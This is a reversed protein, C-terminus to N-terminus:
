VKEVEEAKEGRDGQVIKFTVKDGQTLTTGPKVGSAHIFYEKGDEGKVFGFHKEANFFKITGETM